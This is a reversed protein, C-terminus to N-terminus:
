RNEYFDNSNYYFELIDRYDKGQKAMEIAGLQSMGVGHGWGHGYVRIAEGDFYKRESSPFGIIYKRLEKDKESFEYEGSRESEKQSTESYIIVPARESLARGNIESFRLYEGEQSDSSLNEGESLMDSSVELDKNERKQNDKLAESDYPSQAYDSDFTILTSKLTGTLGKFYDGNLTKSGDDGLITIKKARGGVSRESIELGIPNGINAGLQDLIDQILSEDLDRSWTYDQSYPDPKAYFYSLNKGGWVDRVSDMYGGSSASFFTVVLENNNM